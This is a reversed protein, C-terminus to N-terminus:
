GRGIREAEQQKRNMYIGWRGDEMERGGEKRIEWWVRIRIMISVVM